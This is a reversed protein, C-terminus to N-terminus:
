TIIVKDNWLSFLQIPPMSWEDWNQTDNRKCAASRIMSPKAVCSGYKVMRLSSNLSMWLRGQSIQSWYPWSICSQVPAARSFFPSTRKFHPHINQSSWTAYMCWYVVLRQLWTPRRWSYWITGASSPRQPQFTRNNVSAHQTIQELLEGQKWTWPMILRQLIISLYETLKIKEKLKELWYYTIM